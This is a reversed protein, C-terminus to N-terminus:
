PMVEALLACAADLDEPTNANLFADHGAAGVPAFEVEVTEHRAAWARVSGGQGGTLWAHLDDAFAVPWLGFVPHLRGASSALAIVQRGGAAALLRAVLDLPFFPTDGAVTAVHRVQPCQRRAHTMGALIGALPGAFGEVPDAVVPLGFAAFRAPDGNANIVIREVQPRLRDLVHALMPRGGLDLLTKDGGGMRRSQGGALVCGLVPDQAIRAAGAKSM